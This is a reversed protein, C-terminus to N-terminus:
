RPLGDREANYCRSVKNDKHWQEERQACFIWHSYIVASFFIIVGAAVYPGVKDVGRPPAPQQAPAPPPPSPPLTATPPAATPPTVVPPTPTVVPPTVIPPQVVVPPKVIPPKVIPPKVVPPKAVPPKYGYGTAGASGCYAIGFLVVALVVLGAFVRVFLRPNKTVGEAIPDEVDKIKMESEKGYYLERVERFTAM